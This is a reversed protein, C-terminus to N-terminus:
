REVLWTVSGLGRYTLRLLFNLSYIINYFTGTITQLIWLLLIGYVSYSNIRGKDSMDTRRYM